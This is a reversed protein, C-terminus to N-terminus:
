RKVNSNQVASASLKQQLAEFSIAGPVRTGNEFFIAPTGQVRHQQGWAVNRQLQNNVLNSAQPNACASPNNTEPAVGKLMWDRWATIPESSCLIASSKQVSDQGLIPYPFIYVTVDQLKDLELELRKCHICNPDAFVALRRSGDGQKWVLADALPLASFPVASLKDIRQETLNARTRTDLIHGEILHDGRADTYYVQNGANVEYLGPIPTKIVRDIAPFGQLRAPLNKRIQAEQALVSTSAVLLAGLVLVCRQYISAGASPSNPLPSGLYSGDATGGDFLSKKHQLTIV